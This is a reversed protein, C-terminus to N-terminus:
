KQEDEEDEAIKKFYKKITFNVIAKEIYKDKTLYVIIALLLYLLAVIGFGATNSNLVSALFLALTITGLLFALAFCVIVVTTTVLDAFLKTVRKVLFLRLYEMRTDLYTKIASSIEEFDKEKKEEM